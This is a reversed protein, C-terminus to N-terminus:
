HQFYIYLDKKHILRYYNNVYDKIFYSKGSGSRGSIYIIDRERKPDGVVQFKQNPQSLTLENFTNKAKGSDDLSIIQSSKSKADNTMIMAIPTGYNEANLTM